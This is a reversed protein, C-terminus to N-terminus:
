NNPKEVNRKIDKKFIKKYLFLILGIIFVIVSIIQNITIMTRLHDYRLFDLTFKLLSMIVLSIYIINDKNRLKNLVFFITIFSVTELLQIPFLPINLGDIYIVSFIGNYPIGYCCGSFFCGIKAIGYILPLALISYKILLKELPYIKEFILSALVLGLAGGYSTLGINNLTVKAHNMLFTLFIGFVLTMYFSLIFFLWIFSKWKKTKRLSIYIYIMGIIISFLIFTSYIPFTIKSITM